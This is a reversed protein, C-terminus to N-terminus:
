TLGWTCSFISCKTLLNIQFDPWHPWLGCWFDWWCLWTWWFSPCVSRWFSPHWMHNRQKCHVCCFIQFYCFENRRQLLNFWSDHHPLLAWPLYIPLSSGKLYHLTWLFRWTWSWPYRLNKGWSGVWVVTICKWWWWPCGWRSWWSIYVWPCILYCHILACGLWNRCTRNVAPLNIPWHAEIFSVWWSLSGISCAPVRNKSVCNSVLATWVQPPLNQLWIHQLLVRTVSWACWQPFSCQLMMIPHVVICQCWARNPSCFFVLGGILAVIHLLPEWAIWDCVVFSVVDAMDLYGLWRHHLSANNWEVTLQVVGWYSPCSNWGSLTHFTGIGQGLLLCFKITDSRNLKKVNLSGLLICLSISGDSGQNYQLALLLRGQMWYLHCSVPPVCLRWSGWRDLLVCCPLLGRKRILLNWWVVFCRLLGLCIECLLVHLTM